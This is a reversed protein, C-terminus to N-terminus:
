SIHSLYRKLFGFSKGPRTAALCLGMLGGMYVLIGRM